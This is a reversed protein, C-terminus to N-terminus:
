RLGTRPWPGAKRRGASPEAGRGLRASLGAVFGGAAASDATGGGRRPAVPFLGFVRGRGRGRGACVARRAPGRGGLQGHPHPRAARGDRARRQAKLEERLNKTFGLLAHKAIGYSGGNPYATISATSCITFIHGRGQAIFGPLLPLTVDYASLLNVALMQRLQSGDAPEDQLRGPMFAGANNVLVEVPLGLALVFAAFRACDAPQSLDAPLTHLVAGPVEAQLATTLAALDAASRACTAVPYGARLFRSVVARGIGKSGGTVVILKESTQVKNM